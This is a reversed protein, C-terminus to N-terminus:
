IAKSPKRLKETNKTNKWFKSLEKPKGVTINTQKDPELFDSGDQVINAWCQSHVTRGERERAVELGSITGDEWSGAREDAWGGM